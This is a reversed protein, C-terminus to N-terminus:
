KKGKAIPPAAILRKMATEFDMGSLNLPKTRPKKKESANKKM